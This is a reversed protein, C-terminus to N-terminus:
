ADSTGADPGQPTSLIAPAGDTPAKHPGPGTTGSGAVLGPPTSPPWCPSRHPRLPCLMGALSLLTFQFRELKRSFLWADSAILAPPVPQSPSRGFTLHAAEKEDIDLPSPGNWVPHCWLLCFVDAQKSEQKLWCGGLSWLPCGPVLSESCTHPRTFTSRRGRARCTVLSVPATAACPRGVRQGQTHESLRYLFINFYLLM